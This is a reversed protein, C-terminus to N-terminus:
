RFVEAISFVIAALALGMSLGTTFGRGWEGM